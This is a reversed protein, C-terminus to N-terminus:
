CIAKFILEFKIKQYEQAQLHIEINEGNSIINAPAPLEDYSDFSLLESFLSDLTNQKNYNNKFFYSM